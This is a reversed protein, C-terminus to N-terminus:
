VANGNRGDGRISKRCEHVGYAAICCLVLGGVILWPRDKLYGIRLADGAVIIAALSAVVWFIASSIKDRTRM